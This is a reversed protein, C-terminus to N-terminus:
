QEGVHQIAAMWGAMFDEASDLEGARRFGGALHEIM